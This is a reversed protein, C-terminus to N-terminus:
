LMDNTWLNDSTAKVYVGDILFIWAIIAAIVLCSRTMIEYTEESKEKIDGVLLGFSLVCNIYEDKKIGEPEGNGWSIKSYDYEAMFGTSFYGTPLLVKGNEARSMIIDYEFEPMAFWIKHGDALTAIYVMFNIGYRDWLGSGAVAIHYLYNEGIGMSRFSPYRGGTKQIKDVDVETIFYGSGEAIEDYTSYVPYGTDRDAIIGAGQEKRASETYKREYDFGTYRIPYDKAVSSLDKIVHFANLTTASTFGALLLMSVIVTRVAFTSTKTGPLSESEHDKVTIFLFVFYIVAVIVDLVIELVHFGYEFASFSSILGSVQGVGSVITLLFPLVALIRFGVALFRKKALCALGLLEFAGAIGKFVAAAATFFLKSYLFGVYNWVHYKSELFALVVESFIFGCLLLASFRFLRYGKKLGSDEFYRKLILIACTESSTFLIKWLYETPQADMRMIRLISGVVFYFLAFVGNALLMKGGVCALYEPQKGDKVDIM